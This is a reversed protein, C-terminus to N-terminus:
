TNKLMNRKATDETDAKRRETQIPIEDRRM